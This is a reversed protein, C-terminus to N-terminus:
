SFCFYCDNYITFKKRISKYLNDIRVSKELLKECGAFEFLELSKNKIDEPLVWDVDLEYKFENFLNELTMM